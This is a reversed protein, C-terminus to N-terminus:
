ARWYASPIAKWCTGELAFAIEDGRRDRALHSVVATVAEASREAGSIVGHRSLRARAWPLIDALRTSREVHHLHVLDLGVPAPWEARGTFDAHLFRGPTAPPTDGAVAVGEGDISAAAIAPGEPLHPGLEDLAAAADCSLLLMNRMAHATMLRAVFTAAGMAPTASPAEGGVLVFGSAAFAAADAPEAGPSAPAPEGADGTDVSAFYGLPDDMVSPHRRLTRWGTRAAALARHDIPLVGHEALFWTAYLEQNLTAEVSLRPLHAWRADLAAVLACARRVIPPGTLNAMAALAAADAAEARIYIASEHPAPARDGGTVLECSLTPDIAVIARLYDFIAATLPHPAGYCLITRLPASAM